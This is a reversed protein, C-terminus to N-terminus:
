GRNWRTPLTWFILLGMLVLMAILHPGDLPVDRGALQATGCAALSTAAWRAWRVRRAWRRQRPSVGLPALAAMVRLSFGDDAPEADQWYQRLADDLASGPPPVPTPVPAQTSHTM